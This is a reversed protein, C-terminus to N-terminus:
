ISRRHLDLFPDPPCEEAIRAALSEVAMARAEPSERDVDWPMDIVTVGQQRLVGVMHSIERDLDMLYRLDISSECKRGARESMRGEIRRKSTEPAVLMRVCVNPLMVTSTMSHYLDRYTNFERQTMAGNKIQLRAFCTDGFYSRDLIAHGHGSMAHWQANQHMRYRAQLLHVQMNFAYRKPNEYFDALYPNADDAEDPEMLVLTESGLAAGLERTLSSKGAGIIGEVIVVKRRLRM